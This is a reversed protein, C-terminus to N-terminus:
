AKSTLPQPGQRDQIGQLAPVFRRALRFLAVSFIGISRLPCCNHREFIPQRLPKLLKANHRRAWAARRLVAANHSGRGIPQPCATTLAESVANTILKKGPVPTLGAPESFAVFHIPGGTIVETFNALHIAQDGVDTFSFPIAVGKDGLEAIPESLCAPALGISIRSPNSSKGSGFCILQCM